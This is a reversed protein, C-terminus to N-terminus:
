ENPVYILRTTTVSRGFRDTAMLTLISGGPPLALTETFRGNQEPLLPAGDLTLAVARAARGAVTVVGGAVTAGNAPSALTIAPGALLPHLEWLGYGILAALAIAILPKTM